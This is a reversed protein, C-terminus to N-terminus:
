YIAALAGEFRDRLKLSILAAAGAGLSHGTVVLRYGQKNCARAYKIDKEQSPLPLTQCSGVPLDDASDGQDKTLFHKCFILILRCMVQRCLSCFHAGEKYDGSVVVLRPARHEISM